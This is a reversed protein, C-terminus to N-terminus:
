FKHCNHIETHSASVGSKNLDVKTSLFKSITATWM